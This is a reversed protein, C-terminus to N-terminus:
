SDSRAIAQDWAAAFALNFVRVAELSEPDGHRELTDRGERTLRMGQTLLQLLGLKICRRLHPAETPMYVSITGGNGRAAVVSKALVWLNTQTPRLIPAAGTRTTPPCPEDKALQTAFM